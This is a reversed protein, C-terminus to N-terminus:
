SDATTSYRTKSCDWEILCYNKYLTNVLGNVIISHPTHAAKQVSPTRERCPVIIQALHAASPTIKCHLYGLAWKALWFWLVRGSICNRDSNPKICNLNFRTWSALKPFCIHIDTLLKNWIGEFSQNSVASPISPMSRKCEQTNRLFLYSCIVVQLTMHWSRTRCKYYDKNYHLCVKIM